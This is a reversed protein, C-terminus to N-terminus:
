GMVVHNSKASQLKKQLREKIDCHIHGYRSSYQQVRLIM